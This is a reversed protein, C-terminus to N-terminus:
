LSTSLTLKVLFMLLILLFILYSFYWTYVSNAVLLLFYKSKIAVELGRFGRWNWRLTVMMLPWFGINKQRLAFGNIREELERGSFRELFLFCSTRSLRSTQRLNEMWCYLSSLTLTWGAPYDLISNDSSVISSFLLWALSGGPNLITFFRDLFIFSRWTLM